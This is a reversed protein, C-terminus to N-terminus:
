DDDVEYNGYITRHKHESKFKKQNLPADTFEFSRLRINRLFSSVKSKDEGSLKSLKDVLKDHPRNDTKILLELSDLINLYENNFKFINRAQEIFRDLNYEPPRYKNEVFCKYNDYNRKDRSEKKVYALMVTKSVQSWMNFVKTHGPRYDFKYLSSEIQTWAIQYLDGFSNNNKGGILTHLKHTRIIQRILESAHAMIENRLNVDTCGGRVYEALLKEVYDNDFYYNKPLNPNKPINPNQITIQNSELNEGVNSKKPKIDVHALKDLDDDCDIYDDDFEEYELSFESIEDSDYLDSSDIM